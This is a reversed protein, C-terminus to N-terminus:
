GGVSKRLGVMRRYFMNKSIDEVSETPYIRRAFKELWEDYVWEPGLRQEIYPKLAWRELSIYGGLGWLKVHAAYLKKCTRGFWTSIIRPLHDLITIRLDIPINFIPATTAAPYSTLQFDESLNQFIASSLCMCKVGAAPKHTAMKPSQISQSQGEIEANNDQCTNFDM